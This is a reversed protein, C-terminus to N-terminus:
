KKGRAGEQEAAPQPSVEQWCYGCRTVGVTIMNRCNPCARRKPVPTRDLLVVLQRWAEAL